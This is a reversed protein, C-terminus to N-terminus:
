ASCISSSPVPMRAESTRGPGVLLSIPESQSSSDAAKTISWHTRKPRARCGRTSGAAAMASAIVVITPAGRPTCRFRTSTVGSAVTSPRHRELVDPLDGVGHGVVPVTVQGLHPDVRDPEEVAEPLLAPLDAPEPQGVLVDHEDGTGLGVLLEEPCGVRGEVLRGGVREHRRDEALAHDEVGRGLLALLHQLVLRQAAVHHAPVGRRDLALDVPHDRLPAVLALDVKEVPEGLQRDVRRRGAQDARGEALLEVGGERLVVVVEFAPGVRDRVDVRVGVDLAEPEAVGGALPEDPEDLRDDVLPLHPASDSAIVAVQEVHQDRDVHAGVVDGPDEDRHHERPM